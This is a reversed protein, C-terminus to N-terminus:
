AVVSDVYNLIIQKKRKELEAFDDNMNKIKENFKTSLAPTANDLKLVSKTIDITGGKAKIDSILTNRRDKYFQVDRKFDFMENIFTESSPFENAITDVKEKFKKFEDDNISHKVFTELDNKMKEISKEQELVPVVRSKLMSLQATDETNVNQVDFKLSTLWPKLKEKLAKIKMVAANFKNIFIQPNKNKNFSVIEDAFTSAFEDSYETKSDKQLKTLVELKKFYEIKLKHIKEEQESVAANVEEEKQIYEDHAITQAAVNSNTNIVEPKLIFMTNTKLDEDADHWDKAAKEVDSVAAKLDIDKEMEKLKDNLERFQEDNMIEIDYEKNYSPDDIEKIKQEVTKIAKDLMAIEKKMLTEERLSVKLNAGAQTKEDGAPMEAYASKIKSNESVRINLKKVLEAKQKQLNSLAAEPGLKKINTMASRVSSAMDGTSQGGVSVISGLSKSLGTLGKGLGSSVAGTATSPKSASAEGPTAPATTTNNTAEVLYKKYSM